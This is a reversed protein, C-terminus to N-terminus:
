ESCVTCTSEAWAVYDAVHLFEADQAQAYDLFGVFAQFRGEDVGSFSPHFEVLLPKGQARLKDFESKLLAQWDEAPLDSFPNDCFAALSGQNDAAHMPVAWFGYAASRYPLVDAEHGPLFSRGAVFGLNYEFGLADVIEWTDQNQDFRTARFGQVPAGLCDELATKTDGILQEQATRTLEALTGSDPRVFAMMEYGEDRLAQLQACNQSAFPGDVLITATLNRARLEAVMRDLAEANETETLQLVVRAKNGAPTNDCFPCPCGAVLVLVVAPICRALM